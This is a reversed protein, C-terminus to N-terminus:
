EDLEEEKRMLNNYIRQNLVAMVRELTEKDVFGRFLPKGTPYKPDQIEILYRM